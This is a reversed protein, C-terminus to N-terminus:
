VTWAKAVTEPLRSLCRVGSPGPLAGVGPGVAALGPGGDRPRVRRLAPCDGMHSRVQGDKRSFTWSDGLFVGLM